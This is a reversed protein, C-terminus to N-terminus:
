HSRWVACLLPPPALPPPLPAGYISDYEQQTVARLAPREVQKFATRRVLNDCIAALAWGFGIAGVLPHSKFPKLVVDFLSGLSM